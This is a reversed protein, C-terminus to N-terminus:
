ACARCVQSFGCDTCIMHHHHTKEPYSFRAVKGDSGKLILGADVLSTLARYMTVTDLRGRLQKRVDTVSLPKKTKYLLELMAVRGPTARGGKAKLLGAFDPQM